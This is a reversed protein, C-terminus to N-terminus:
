IMFREYKRDQVYIILRGRRAHYESKQLRQVIERGNEVTLCGVYKDNYFLQFGAYLATLISTSFALWYVLVPNYYYFYNIFPTVFSHVVIVWGVVISPFKEYFIKKGGTEARYYMSTANDDDTDCDVKYVYAYVLLLWLLLTGVFKLTTTPFTEDPFRLSCVAILFPIIINCLSFFEKLTVHPHHQEPESPLPTEYVLLNERRELDKQKMDLETISKQLERETNMVEDERKKIQDERVNLKATWEQELKELDKQKTDLKTKWNQLEGEKNKIQGERVNLKATWEQELKELDKQKMDLKTKWNQLEGEKNKIQGERVNLKATWEQELKELDKQKMDLKTKWNQLEGEKNKIQGERVNLKATWEQELKELDKQKMDLKTKWNQLEGEKNKIQGERVNLKETWKQELKALNMKTLRANERFILVESKVDDIIKVLDAEVLSITLEVLRKTKEDFIKVEAAKTEPSSAPAPAPSSAPASAPSSAPAPALSSAPAPAPSSAPASAPSSAPAPAPSSAPAPAPPAPVPTPYAEPTNKSIQSEYFIVLNDVNTHPEQNSKDSSM